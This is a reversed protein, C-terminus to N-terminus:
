LNEAKISELSEQVKRLAEDTAKPATKGCVVLIEGFRDVEHFLLWRAYHKLNTQTRSVTEIGVLFTRLNERILAEIGIVKQGDALHEHVQKIKELIKPLEKQLKRDEEIIKHILDLDKKSLNFVQNRIEQAVVYKKLCEKGKDTLFYPLEGARKAEHLSTKSILKEDLLLKLRKALPRQNFKGISMIKRFGMDGKKSLLKLIDYCKEDISM